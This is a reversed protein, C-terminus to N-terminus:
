RSAHHAEFASHTLPGDSSFRYILYTAMASLIVAATLIPWISLDTRRLGLWLLVVADIVVWSIWTARLRSRSIHRRSNFTHWLGIAIAVILSGVFWAALVDWSQANTHTLRTLTILVLGSCAGIIGTMIKM